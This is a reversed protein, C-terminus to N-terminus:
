HKKMEFLATVCCVVASLKREIYTVLLLLQSSTIQPKELLLSEGHYPFPLPSFVVCHLITLFM